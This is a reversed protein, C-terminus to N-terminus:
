DFVAVRQRGPQASSQREDVLVGAGVVGPIQDPAKRIDRVIGADWELVSDPLEKAAVAVGQNLLASRGGEDAELGAVGM